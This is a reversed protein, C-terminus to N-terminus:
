PNASSELSFEEVYTDLNVQVTELNIKQKSMKTVKEQLLHSVKLQMPNQKIKLSDKLLQTKEKEPIVNSNEYRYYCM